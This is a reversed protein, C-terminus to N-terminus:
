GTFTHLADAWARADQVIMEVRYRGPAGTLVPTEGELVLRDPGPARVASLRAPGSARADVLIGRASVLVFRDGTLVLDGRTRNARAPNMGGPLADPVDVLVRLSVGRAIRLVSGPGIARIVRERRAWSLGRLTAGGVVLVAVVVLISQLM